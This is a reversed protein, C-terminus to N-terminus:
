EGAPRVWVKVSDRTIGGRNDHVVAIVFEGRLEDITCCNTVELTNGGGPIPLFISGRDEWAYTLPDGDPDTAVTTITTSNGATFTDPVATVSSIVPPNNETNVPKDDEGCGATIFLLMIFIPSVLMRGSIYRMSEGGIDKFGVANEIAQM